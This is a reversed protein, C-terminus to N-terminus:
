FKELITGDACDGDSSGNPCRDTKEGAVFRRVTKDDVIGLYSPVKLASATKVDIDSYVDTYEGSPHTHYVAALKSGQPILAHYQITDTSKSTIPDSAYIGGDGGIICFGGFEYNSTESLAIATMAVGCQDVSSFKRTYDVSATLPAQSKTCSAILLVLALLIKTKM